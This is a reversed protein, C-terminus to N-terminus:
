LQFSSTSPLTESAYSKIEGRASSPARGAVRLAKRYVEFDLCLSPLGKPRPPHAGRLVENDSHSELNPLKHTPPYLARFGNGRLVEDDGHPDHRPTQPDLSLSSSRPIIM